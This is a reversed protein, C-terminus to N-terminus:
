VLYDFLINVPSAVTAWQVIVKRNEAHLVNVARDFCCKLRMTEVRLM